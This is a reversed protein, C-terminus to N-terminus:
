NLLPSDLVSRVSKNSNEDIRTWTAKIFLAGGVGLCMVAGMMLTTLLWTHSSALLIVMASSFIFFALCIAIVTMRPELVKNNKDTTM